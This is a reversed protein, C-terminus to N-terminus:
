KTKKGTHIAINGGSIAQDRGNDYVVGTQGWIKIHFTDPDSDGAWIMFTYDDGGGNISGTGKFRAHDNGTVVLWDYESSQFNFDGANLHFQTNGTPVVAGKKYKSVFGFTAKGSLDPDLAYAGPESDFWGGGTVFGGDADYVVLIASATAADGADDTITVDITYVGAAQYTSSALCQSGDVTGITTIGDGWAVTCTHTDAVGPDAFAATVTVPQDALGVPELPTSLSQISPPVNTTFEVDGTTADVTTAVGDIVVTVPQDGALYQVSFDDDVIDSIRLTVGAPIDITTVGDGAEPVVVVPGGVVVELTISGCTANVESGAPIQVTVFGCLRISAQGSTGGTLVKVGAPEPLDVFSLPGGTGNSLIEGTHGVGDPDCFRGPVDPVCEIDDPIGDGDTDKPAPPDFVLVKRASTTLLLQGDGNITVRYPSPQFFYGNTEVVPTPRSEVFDGALTYTRIERTNFDVIHAQGVDDFTIDVPQGFGTLTLLRQGTAPDIKHVKDRSGEFDSIWVFGDPDVSVAYPATGTGGITALYAGQPSFKQVGGSFVSAVYVNGAADTDIGLPNNFPTGPGGGFARVFTGASTFQQVRAGGVDTVYIDGNLGVAVVSPSNFLGPTTGFGGVEFLFTGDPSYKAVTHSGNKVVWIEQTAPDVDIGIASSTNAVDFSSAPDYTWFGDPDFIALSSQSVGSDGADDTITVRVTYVGVSAHIHSATCESGDVTGPATTGDGWDVTCTHTDNVGPDSYEATVDVSEGLPANASSLNLSDVTPRVNSTFAVAGYTDYVQRTVGDHVVTVPGGGSVVEVTFDDDVPTTIRATVGDPISITTLGDGDPEVVVPGGAIVGVAASGCTVNLEAGAPVQLTFFGCVKVTAQGSTGGALIKVGQPDPLDIFSVVEGTGNSLLEGGNGAADAFVTSPNSPDADISDPIGDGDSDVPATPDLVQIYSRQTVFARGSDAIAVRFTNPTTGAVVSDVFTGDLTYTRLESTNFNIIHVQNLADFDLDTTQASGPVSFTLEVVGTVPDAKRIVGSQDSVWLKGDPDIGIGFPVSGMSYSQLQAGTPSFKRVTGNGADAVFVSGGSDVAIGLPNSFISSSGWMGLYTGDSAYRVVRNNGRDTFFVDGTVPSVAVDGPGNVQGPGTGCGFGIEGLKTGVQDFRFVKCDYYSLVMVDDTLPDVDIGQTGSSTFEGSGWQSAQAWVAANAPSSLLALAMLTLAMPVIFRPWRGRVVRKRPRPLVARGGM